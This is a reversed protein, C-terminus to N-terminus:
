DVGKVLVYADLNYEKVAKRFSLAVQNFTKLPEPTCKHYIVHYLIGDHYIKGNLCMAQFYSPKWYLLYYKSFLDRENPSITWSCQTLFRVTAPTVGHKHYANIASYNVNADAPGDYVNFRSNPNKGM